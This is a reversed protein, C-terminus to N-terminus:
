MATPAPRKQKFAYEEDDAGEDGNPRGGGVKFGVNDAEGDHGDYGANPVEAAEADGAKADLGAHEFNNQANKHEEVHAPGHQRKGIDEGDPEEDIGEEAQEGHADGPKEACTVEDKGDDNINQADDHADHEQELGDGGGEGKREEDTEVQQKRANM